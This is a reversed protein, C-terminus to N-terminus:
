LSYVEPPHWNETDFGKQIDPNVIPSKSHLLLHIPTLVFQNDSAIFLCGTCVLFPNCGTAGNCPLQSSKQASQPKCKNQSSKSCCSKMSVPHKAQHAQYILFVPQFASILLLALIILSASKM